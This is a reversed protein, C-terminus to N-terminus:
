ALDMECVALKWGKFVLTVLRLETDGKTAHVKPDAAYRRLQIAAEARLAEIETESADRRAYKVEVIYSFGIEPQHILDPMMYFDAYGKNAEYEPYIIYTRTLGLYALLFGKVHAEGEIFERIASQRELESSFYEFVPKWDGDYAMDKVLDHLKYLEISFVDAEKYAEILYTYLQERVTLNPVGLLTDGRKTGKISLLGFYYLLSKFNDPKAIDEAPFADKIVATTEGNNM